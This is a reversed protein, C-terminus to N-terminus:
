VNNKDSTEPRGFTQHRIYKGQESDAVPNPDVMGQYSISLDLHVQPTFVYKYLKFQRFYTNMVYDSITQIQQQTFIALSFPPRHVSHCLLLEVFHEYCMDMNGLPTDTCEAHTDKVISFFCSTQERNFGSDQCFRVTYYYLDLLVSVRPDSSNRELSLMQSLARHIEDVSKAKQLIEVDEITLDKWLCIRTKRKKI